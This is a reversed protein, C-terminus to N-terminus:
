RFEQKWDKMERILQASLKSYEKNAQLMEMAEHKKGALATDLIHGAVTHFRRHLEAIRTRRVTVKELSRIWQGFACADDRRADRPAVDCKGSTVANRLRLNWVGHAGIARDLSERSTM